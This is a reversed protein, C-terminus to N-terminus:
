ERVFCHQLMYCDYRMVACCKRNNMFHKHRVNEAASIEPSLAYLLLDTQKWKLSLADRCTSTAQQQRAVSVVRLTTQRDTQTNPVVTCFSAASGNLGCVRTRGLFWVLFRLIHPDLNGCFPPSQLPLPYRRSKGARQWGANRNSLRHRRSERSLQSAPQKRIARAIIKNAYCDSSVCEVRM